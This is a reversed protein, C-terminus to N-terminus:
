NYIIDWHNWCMFLYNMELVNLVIEPDRAPWANKLGKCNLNLTTNNTMPWKELLFFGTHLITCSVWTLSINVIQWKILLMKKIVFALWLLKHNCDDVPSHILSVKWVYFVCMQRFICRVRWQQSKYEARNTTCENCGTTLFFSYKFCKKGGRVIAAAEVSCYFNSSFDYICM